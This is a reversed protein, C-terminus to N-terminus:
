AMTSGGAPSISVTPEVPEVPGDPNETVFESGNWWYEGAESITLNSTQPNGAKSLIVMSSTVYSSGNMITYDYWGDSDSDSLADGPWTSNTCYNASCFQALIEKISKTGRIYYISQPILDCGKALSVILRHILKIYLPSQHNPGIGLGWEGFILIIYLLFFYLFKNKLRM